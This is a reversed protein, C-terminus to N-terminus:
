MERWGSATGRWQVLTIDFGQVWGVLPEVFLGRDMREMGSPKATQVWSM